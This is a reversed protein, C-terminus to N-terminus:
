AVYIADKEIYPKIHPRLAKHCVLDVENQFLDELYFKLDFYHDFTPSNFDVLIDIDSSANMEDRALSGFLALKNVGFNSKIFNHNNNLLKIANAKSYHM